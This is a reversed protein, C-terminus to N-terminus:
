DRGVRDELEDLREEIRLLREAGATRERMTLAILRDLRENTGDVRQVLGDM